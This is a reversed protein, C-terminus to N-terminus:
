EYFGQIYLHTPGASNYSDTYQAVSTAITDGVSYNFVSGNTFSQSSLCLSLALLYLTYVHKM